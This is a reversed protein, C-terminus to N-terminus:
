TRGLLAGHLLDNAFDIFEELTAFRWRHRDYELWFREVKGNRRPNHPLTVVQRVRRDARFKTLESEGRPPGKRVSIFLATGRDTFVERM